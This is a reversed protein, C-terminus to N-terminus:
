YFSLLSVALIKFFIKIRLYPPLLTFFQKKSVRQFATMLLISPFSLTGGDSHTSKLSQIVRFIKYLGYIPLETMFYPFWYIM